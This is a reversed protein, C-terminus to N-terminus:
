RQGIMKYKLDRDIWVRAHIQGPSRVNANLEGYWNKVWPWAYSFFYANPLIIYPCQEIIYVNLEKLLKKAKAVDPEARAKDFTETFYPDNFMSPNWFQEPDHGIVLLVSFPDGCGKSMAYLHKHTKGRMIAYYVGYEVVKIDLDIGLPSWFDELLSITDAWTSTCVIEAKFGNPYGAEAMLQKAEELDFQFLEKASDPLEEFPTYLDTPWNMSYPFNLIEAYGGHLSEMIAQRDISISMAKRIRFDSFPPTDMRAAIVYGTTGMRKYRILEPNSQELSEVYKWSVAEEIDCKGTRLAALQTSEDLIIPWVLRDVFPLKYEKGDITTTDWYIPNREFTLCSGSVYDVLMFPGTGVANRWDKIGAEVLEPPYIKQFYGWSLPLLWNGQYEKLKVEVTYRDLATVSQVNEYYPCRGSTVVRTKAFAVDDATLERSAMVGPKDQWYVGKRIHYIVTIADPLEWSEALCGRLFETPIYEMDTFPFQNTGRPGYKEFDGMVLNEMYPSMFPDGIWNCDAPDWSAPELGCHAHLVVLTGGYQPGKEVPAATEQKEKVVEEKEVVKGVIREEEEKVEAPRCSMLVLALVILCSLLVSLIKTKM